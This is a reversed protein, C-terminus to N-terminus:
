YIVTWKGRCDNTSYATRLKQRQTYIKNYFNPSDQNPGYINVLSVNLKNCLKIDLLLLNGVDDKKM